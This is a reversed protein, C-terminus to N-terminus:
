DDLLQEVGVVAHKLVILVDLQVVEVPHCVLGVNVEFEDSDQHSDGDVIIGKDVQGEGHGAEFHEHAM